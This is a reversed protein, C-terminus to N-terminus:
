FRERFLLLSSAKTQRREEETVPSEPIDQDTQCTYGAETEPPEREGQCLQGAKNGRQARRSPSPPKEGPNGTITSQRRDVTERRVDRNSTPHITSSQIIKSTDIQHAALINPFIARLSTKKMMRKISKRHNVPILQFVEGDTSIPPPNRTKPLELKSAHITEPSHFAGAQIERRHNPPPTQQEQRTDIRNKRRLVRPYSFPPAPVVKKSPHNLQQVMYLDLTTINGQRRAKRKGLFKNQATTVKKTHPSTLIEQIQPNYQM